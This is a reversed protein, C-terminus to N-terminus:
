AQFTGSSDGGKPPEKGPNRSFGSRWSRGIRGGACTQDWFLRFASGIALLRYIPARLVRRPLSAGSCLDNSKLGKAVRAWPPRVDAWFLSPLAYGAIYIGNMCHSTRRRLRNWPGAPVHQCTRAQAPMHRFRTPKHLCTRSHLLNNCVGKGVKSGDWGVWNTRELQDLSAPVVPPKDAMTPSAHAALLGRCGRIKEKSFVSFQFSFVSCQGRVINAAFISAILKEIRGSRLSEGSRRKALPQYYRPILPSERAHSSMSSACCGSHRETM